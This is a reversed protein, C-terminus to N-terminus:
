NAEELVVLAEEDVELVVDADVGAVLEPELLLLVLVPLPIQPDVL